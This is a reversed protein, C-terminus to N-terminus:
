QADNVERKLLSEGVRYYFQQEATTLLLGKGDDEIYVTSSLGSGWRAKIGVLLYPFRERQYYAETSIVSQRHWEIVQMEAATLQELQEQLRKKNLEAPQASPHIAILDADDLYSIFTAPNSKPYVGDHIFSTLITIFLFLYNACFGLWAYPRYKDKSRQPMVVLLFWVGLPLIALKISEQNLTFNVSFSFIGIYIVPAIIWLRVSRDQKKRYMYIAIILVIIWSLAFGVFQVINPQSFASTEVGM